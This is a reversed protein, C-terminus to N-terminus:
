KLREWLSVLQSNLSVSEVCLRERGRFGQGSGKGQVRARFGQGSSKGQVRARFEQWLAEAKFHYSRVLVQYLVFSLNWAGSEM